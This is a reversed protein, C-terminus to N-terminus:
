DKQSNTICFLMSLPAMFGFICYFFAMDVLSSEQMIFSLISLIAIFLSACFGLMVIKYVVSSVRTAIAVTIVLSIFLLAICIYLFYVIMISLNIQWIILYNM